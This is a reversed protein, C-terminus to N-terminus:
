HEKMHKKKSKPGQVGNKCDAGGQWPRASPPWTPRRMSPKSRILARLAFFATANGMGFCFRSHWTATYQKYDKTIQLKLQFPFWSLIPQSGLNKPLNSAKRVLFSTTGLESRFPGRAGRTGSSAITSFPRFALSFLKSMWCMRVASTEICTHHLVFFNSTSTGLHNTFPEHYSLWFLCSFLLYQVTFIFLIHYIFKIYIYIYILIYIYTHLKM